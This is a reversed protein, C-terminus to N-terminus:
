SVFKAPSNPLNHCFQYYVLGCAAMFDAIERSQLLKGRRLGLQNRRVIYSKNRRIVQHFSGQRERDRSDMDKQKENGGFLRSKDKQADRDSRSQAFCICTYASM